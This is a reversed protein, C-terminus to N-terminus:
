LQVWQSGPNFPLVGVDLETENWQMTQQPKRLKALDTSDEAFYIELFTSTTSAKIRTIWSSQMTM